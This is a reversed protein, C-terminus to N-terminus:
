NREALEVVSHGAPASLDAATEILGSSAADAMESCLVLDPVTHGVISQVKEASLFSSSSESDQSSAAETFTIGAAPQTQTGEAQDSVELERNNQVHVLTYDEDESYSEM